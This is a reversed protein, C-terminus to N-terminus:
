ALLALDDAYDADSMTEALYRRKQRKQTFSDEKILDVSSSLILDGCIIYMYPALADGNLLGTIHVFLDTDCDPSRVM